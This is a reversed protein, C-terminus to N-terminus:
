AALKLLQVHFEAPVQKKPSRPPMGNKMNSRIDIRAARMASICRVPKFDIKVELGRKSWYEEIKAKLHQAAAIAKENM